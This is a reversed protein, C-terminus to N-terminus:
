EVGRKFHGRTFNKYDDLWNGSKFNELVKVTEEYSEDIFDLRFSDVGLKLLEKMNPILNIPVSNFIHTRCFKDQTLSFEVNMRDKLIYNAKECNRDCDKKECKGGFVSGVPCYETVMLEPKGYVLMQFPVKKSDLVAAIENKNLEISLCSGLLSDGYINPSYSNFANLKYDGIISTRGKFKNIIGVNGTVLGKISGLKEEVRDCVVQFEGKIINPIKLYMDKSELDPSFIDICINEYSLEKVAKLQDKSSVFILNKPLEGKPLVESIVAKNIKILDNKNTLDKEILEVVERRLNNVLSIPLFGEEYKDMSIPSFKFPTDSSKSLNEILKEVTIPKNLAKEVEAGLCTYEKNNYTTTLALKEGLVFKVKIPIEIKRQFPKEYIEKLEALLNNDATQYLVKGEPYKVPLITVEEGAVASEVEKKDKIIKSIVFGEEGMGIRIGDGKSVGETLKILSNEHVKGIPVGTNKPFSYAMMDKGPNGLMYAKSFGQRNFLKLLTKNNGQFDFDEGSYVSDIAKRYIAVVGAVYEPRKMRGEIKLSSTGTAIIDKINEITCMDKPSLIYAKKNELTSKNILSYEMRCPQACRGRNGSRGGIMSSMLCQGSYCICLAGHIFIETEINLDKSIYEIEKLSLERSLVIRKFGAEKFFMAGEGNHITMQTSAHLELEPILKNLLYAFGTDQVILADVGFSHLKAAYDLAETMEKEKLLTNMTIYVKVGYLHCYDIAKQINEDDFNTAYARASFVNGGLYVADAGSQVAAIVSEMSGAPALLEIKRM